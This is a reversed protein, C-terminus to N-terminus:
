YGENPDIRRRWPEASNGYADAAGTLSGGAIGVSQGGPETRAPWVVAGGVTVPQKKLRDTIRQLRMQLGGLDYGSLTGGKIAAHILSLECHEDFLWDCQEVQQPTYARADLATEIERRAQPIAGVLRGAWAEALGPETVGLDAAILPLVDEAVAWPSGPLPM